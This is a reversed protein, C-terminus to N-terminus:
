QAHANWPQKELNDATLEIYGLGPVNNYFSYKLQGNSQLSIDSKMTIDDSTDNAKYGVDIYDLKFGTSTLEGVFGELGKTKLKTTGNVNEFTYRTGQCFSFKIRSMYEWCESINLDKDSQLITITYDAPMGIENDISSSYVGKGAWTGNIDAAAFANTSLVILALFVLKM